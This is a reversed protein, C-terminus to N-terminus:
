SFMLQQLCMLVVGKLGSPRSSFFFRWRQIHEGGNTSKTFKVMKVRLWYLVDTEPELHTSLVVGIIKFRVNLHNGNIKLATENKPTDCLM